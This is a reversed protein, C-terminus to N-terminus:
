VTEMNKWQLKEKNNVKMVFKNKDAMLSLLFINYSIMLFQEDIISSVGIFILSIVLFIYGKNVYDVLIYIYICTIIAFVLVGSIM